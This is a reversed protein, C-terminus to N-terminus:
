STMTQNTTQNKRKGAVYRKELPDLFVDESVTLNTVPDINGYQTGTNLAQLNSSPMPPLSTNLKNIMGSLVPTDFPNIMKPLRENYLSYESLSEQLEEITDIVAELPNAIGLQTAIDEMGLFTRQTIKMPRFSNDELAAYNTDGLRDAVEEQMQDDTMGLIKAAEIDRAMTQQVNFLARNANIYADYVAKPTIPGGKLVETTFLSKSQRSGKAYDAIKYAIGKEPEVEIARAGIM